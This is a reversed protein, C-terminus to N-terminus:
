IEKTLNRFLLLVRPAKSIEQNEAALEGERAKSFSLLNQRM